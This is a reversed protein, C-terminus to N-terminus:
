SIAPLRFQAAAAPDRDCLRRRRCKQCAAPAMPRRSPIRPRHGQRAARGRHPRGDGSRPDRGRGQDSMPDLHDAREAQCKDFLRVQLLRSLRLPAGQRAAGLDDRAADGGMQRRAGRLRAGARTGAANMEHQRYPYRPRPPGWPYNVPGAIKLADETLDYYHWMEEPSIPWDVAYGLRSRAKFRDPRFRLSVM